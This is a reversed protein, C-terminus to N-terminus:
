FLILSAAYKLLCYEQVVLVVSMACITKVMSGVVAFVDADAAWGALWVIEANSRRRNKRPDPSASASGNSSDVETRPLGAVWASVGLRKAQM